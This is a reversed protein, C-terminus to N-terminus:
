AVLVGLIIEEDDISLVNLSLADELFEEVWKGSAFPVRHTVMFVRGDGFVEIEENVDPVFDAPNVGSYLKVETDTHM